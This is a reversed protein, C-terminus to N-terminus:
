RALLAALEPEQRKTKKLLKELTLRQTYDLPKLQFDIERMIAVLSDVAMERIKSEQYLANRREIRTQLTIWGFLLCLLGAGIAGQMRWDKLVGERYPFFWIAAAVVFCLLTLWPYSGLGGRADLQERAIRLVASIGRMGGENRCREFMGDLEKLTLGKYRGMGGGTGDLEERM